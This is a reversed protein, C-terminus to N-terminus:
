ILAFECRTFNVYYNILPKLAEWTKITLKMNEKKQRRKQLSKSCRIRRHNELRYGRRSCPYCSQGVRYSGVKCKNSRSCSARNILENTSGDYKVTGDNQKYM